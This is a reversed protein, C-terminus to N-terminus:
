GSLNLHIQYYFCPGVSFTKLVEHSTGSLTEGYSGKIKGMGERFACGM